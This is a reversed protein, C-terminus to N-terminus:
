SFMDRLAVKNFKGTNLKPIDTVFVYRRPKKYSAIQKRCHDELVAAPIEEATSSVIAAVVIEGWERDRIGFVAVEVVQPYSALAEEVERCYINEGGSIIMDKKRDVLYLFNEEDLFGIDGTHYWGERIADATAASNNWYGSIRTATRTVVEGPQSRPLDEGLDDVIRVHLGTPAQGVSTLARGTEFDGCGAPLGRRCGSGTGPM